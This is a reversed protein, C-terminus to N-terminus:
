GASGAVPWAYPLALQTTSLVEADSGPEVALAEQAALQPMATVALLECRGEEDLASAVIQASRGDKLIVRKGPAPPVVLGTVFRQMRRKVQGRFHARAIVEQGTYCGKNFSVADLLDLNLMQAVFLGSTAGVVQPIGGAIDEVQWSARSAPEGEPPPEGLPAVIMQRWQGQDMPMHLRTSAAAEADPGTIGYVRWGGAADALKVRARLVVRALLGLVTAALEAPLVLLVHDDALHFLRVIALVRGQPNHLGALMAGRQPLQTIDQSLQGNLFTLVDPGRADLVALDDLATLALDPM